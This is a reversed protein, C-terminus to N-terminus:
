EGSGEDTDPRILFLVLDDGRASLDDGCRGAQRSLRRSRETWSTDWQNTLNVAFCPTSLIGDPGASVIRAYSFRVDDSLNTNSGPFAQPPPIQLVYPNGWPDLVAKEGPFGYVSCGNLGSEIEPHLRLGNVPPRFGRESFTADNRFRRDSALPWEASAVKVYPGRWGKGSDDNWSFVRGREYGGDPAIGLINTPSFLDGIKMAAVSFGPLGRMDRLYGNEANMLADQLVRLDSGAATLKARNLTNGVVTVALMSVISLIAVVLVLEMLTFGGVGDDSIIKM